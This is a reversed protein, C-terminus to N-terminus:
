GVDIDSSESRGHERPLLEPARRTRLMIELRVHGTFSSVDSVVGPVLASDSQTM